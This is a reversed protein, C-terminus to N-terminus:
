IRNFSDLFSDLAEESDFKFTCGYPIPTEGTHMKKPFLTLATSHLIGDEKLIAKNEVINPNLAITLVTRETMFYIVQELKKNQFELAKATKKTLEFHNKEFISIIRDM